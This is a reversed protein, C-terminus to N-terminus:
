QKWFSQFLMSLLFDICVTHATITSSRHFLVIYFRDNFCYLSGVEEHNSKLLDMEELNGDLQIHLDGERDILEHQISQLHSLEAEAAM